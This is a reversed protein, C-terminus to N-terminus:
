TIAEELLDYATTILVEAVALASTAKIKENVANEIYVNSCEEM